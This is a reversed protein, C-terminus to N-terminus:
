QKRHLLLNALDHLIGAKKALPDTAKLALEFLTQITQKTKEIGVISPYTLKNNIADIGQQKGLTATNSEIDLLDDQIQFALGLYNAYDAVSKQIPDNHLNAGIVGLQASASLLAGTKLQYLKTLHEINQPTDLTTIDLAQGGAMGKLGSAESLTTIMSLRQDSNLQKAPHASVVQFALTQLADGALIAMAEGFIKHCTPKGRRLDANDMAPLDDHILSYAHILEIACAAGDLNAFDAELAQGTAYVLLPRIRKGGNFITYAMAQQLNPASHALDEKLYQNFLIDTRQQCTAMLDSLSFTM